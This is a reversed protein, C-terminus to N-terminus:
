RSRSGDNVVQVNRQAGGGGVLSMAARIRLSKLTLRRVVLM